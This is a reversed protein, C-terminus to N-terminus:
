LYSRISKKIDKKIYELVEENGENVNFLHVNLLAFNYTNFIQYTIFFFSVFETIPLKQEFKGQKFTISREEFNIQYELFFDSHSIANRIRSVTKDRGLYTLIKGMEPTKKFLYTYSQGELLNKIMLKTCLMEKVYAELFYGFKVTWDFFYKLFQSEENATILQEFLEQIEKLFQDYGLNKSLQIIREKSDNFILLTQFIGEVPFKGDLRKMYTLSIENFEKLNIEVAKTFEEEFIKFLIPDVIRNDTQLLGLKLIKFLIRLSNIDNSKNDIWNMISSFYDIVNLKNYDKGLNLFEELSFGEGLDEFFKKIKEEDM